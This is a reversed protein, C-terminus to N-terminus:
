SFSFGLSPLISVWAAETLNLSLEESFYSPLWSLCTYHGWSGCFHAYIMAWVAPTQFFAKWPVDKLSSGLEALANSSSKESYISHSGLIVELPFDNDRSTPIASFSAQGEELYRFGLFWAIGLFGFIFFVSAWGFNQILPPALLLGTVSGVSLGGFVFAVARSREELPISRAILDTAASPSVGEGIGVLVRSLVFGPMYGALLPLLATAVSWTLVGIQLVKQLNFLHHGMAPTEWWFDQCALRRTIPEFCVGLLLIIASVWGNICEMWIPSVYPIIAISLNVKDMNCIVFALSTSGILKYRQPINKWPPWKRYFGWKVLGVIMGLDRVLGQVELQKWLSPFAFFQEQILNNNKFVSTQTNTNHSLSCFSKSKLTLNAM